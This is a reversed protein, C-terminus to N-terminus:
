HFTSSMIFVKFTENFSTKTVSSSQSILKKNSFIAKTFTVIQRSIPSIASIIMKFLSMKHRNILADNRIANKIIVFYIVITIVRVKLIVLDLNEIRLM